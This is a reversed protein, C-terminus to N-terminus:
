PFFFRGNDTSIVQDPLFIMGVDVFEALPQDNRLDFEAATHQGPRYGDTGSV